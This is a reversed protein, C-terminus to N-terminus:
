YLGNRRRLFWELGLFIMIILVFYWLEVFNNKKIKNQKKNKSISKLKYILKSVNNAYYYGGDQNEAIQKLLIVNQGISRKEFNLRNISFNIREFFRDDIFIELDYKGQNLKGLNLIYDGGVNVFDFKEVKGEIEIKASANIDVSNLSRNVLKVEVSSTNSYVYDYVISFKDLSKLYELESFLYDFLLAINNESSRADQLNLKWLNESELFIFKKIRDIKISKLYKESIFSLEEVKGASLTEDFLNSTVIIAPVVTNQLHNARFDVVFNYDRVNKNNDSLDVSYYRKILERKFLSIDPQPSNYILLVKGKNKVVNVKIKKEAKVDQEENTLVVRLENVGLKDAKLFITKRAKENSFHTISTVSSYLLKDGDFVNLLVSGNVNKVDYFIELPFSNREVVKKNYNVRNIVVEPYIVTDGIGCVDVSYEKRRRFVASSGDNINGDSVIVARDGKNLVFDLKSELKQFNTRQQNIDLSDIGITREGFGWFIVNYKDNLDSDKISNFITKSLLGDDFLKISESEDFAVILKRKNNSEFSSFMTVDGIAILIVLLSLFRFFAM